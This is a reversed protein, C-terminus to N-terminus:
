EGPEGPQRDVDEKEDAEAVAQEDDRLPGPRVQGILSTRSQDRIPSLAAGPGEEMDRDSGKRRKRKARGTAACVAVILPTTLSPAVFWVMLPTDTCTMPCSPPLM